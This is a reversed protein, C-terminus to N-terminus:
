SDLSLSCFLANAARPTRMAVASYVSTDASVVASPPVCTTMEVTVTTAIAECTCMACAALAAPACTKMGLSNPPGVSCRLSLWSPRLLTSCALSRSTLGGSNSTYVPVDRIRQPNLTDNEKDKDVKNRDPQNCDPFMAVPVQIYFATFTATPPLPSEGIESVMRGSAM